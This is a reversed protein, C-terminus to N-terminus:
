GPPFLRVQLVDPNHLDGMLKMSLSFSEADIAMAINLMILERGSGVTGRHFSTVMAMLGMGARLGAILAMRNVQLVRFFSLSLKLTLTLLSYINKWEWQCQCECECQNVDRGGNAIM